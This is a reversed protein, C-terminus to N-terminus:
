SDSLRKKLDPILTPMAFRRLSPADIQISQAPKDGYPKHAAIYKANIPKRFDLLIYKKSKTCVGIFLAQERVLKQFKDDRLEMHGTREWWGTYDCMIELHRSQAGFSVISDSASSVRSTELIQRNCDAGALRTPLGEQTLAEVLTDEFIWSAVLDQGYEIPSRRDRNHVCSLLNEYTKPFNQKLKNIDGDLICINDEAYKLEIAKAKIGQRFMKSYESFAGM